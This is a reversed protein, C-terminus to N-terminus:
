FGFRRIQELGTFLLAVLRLPFSAARLTEGKPAGRGGPASEKDRRPRPRWFPPASSQGSLRPNATAFAKGAQPQIALTELVEASVWPSAAKPLAHRFVITAEILM